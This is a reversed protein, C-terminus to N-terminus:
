PLQLVVAETEPVPHTRTAKVHGADSLGQVLLHQHPINLHSLHSTIEFRKSELRYYLSAVHHGRWARQFLKVKFGPSFFINGELADKIDSHRPFVKDM